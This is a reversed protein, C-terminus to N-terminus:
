RQIEMEADHQEQDSDDWDGQKRSRPLHGVARNRPTLWRAVAERM